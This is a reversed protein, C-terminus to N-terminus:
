SSSDDGSDPNKCPQKTAEKVLDALKGERQRASLDELVRSQAEPDSRLIARYAKVAGEAGATNTAAADKAKDPHEIMFVAMSFSYQGNVEAIYRYQSNAFGKLIEPTYCADVNIDPIAILWRLAWDREKRLTRDLPADEMKHAIAVFRKREEATSPGRTPPAQTQAFAALTAVLLLLGATLTKRM